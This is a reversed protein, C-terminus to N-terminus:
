DIDNNYEEIDEDLTSKCHKYDDPDLSMKINIYINLNINININM